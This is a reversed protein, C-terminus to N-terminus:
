RLTARGGNEELKRRVQEAEDRLLGERVPRPAGEVLDKAEKLGLGTLERVVKIVSIKRSLDALGDLWVACTGAAPSAVGARALLEGLRRELGTTWTEDGPLEVTTTANKLSLQGALYGQLEELAELEDELEKENVHVVVNGGATTRATDRRAQDIRRRIQELFATRHAVVERKWVLWDAISRTDNGHSIDARQNAAQVARRILIKRERLAEISQLERALVAPTGGEDQLPDRVAADRFLYAEILQQKRAIHQDISQVQALAESITVAPM